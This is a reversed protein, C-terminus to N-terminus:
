YVRPHVGVTASNNNNMSYAATLEQLNRVMPSYWELSQPRIRRPSFDKQLSEREAATLEVSWIAMEALLGDWPLLPTTFNGAGIILERDSNGTALTSPVVTGVNTNNAYLTALSATSSAAVTHWDNSTIANISSAINIPSSTDTAASVILVVQKTRSISSRNDYLIGFGKNGLAYSVSSGFHIRAANATHDTLKGRIFMTFVATNQPFNLASTTGSTSIYQNSAAVFSYAM